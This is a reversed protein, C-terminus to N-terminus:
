HDGYYDNKNAMNQAINIPPSTHGISQDRGQALDGWRDQLEL